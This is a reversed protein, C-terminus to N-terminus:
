HIKLYCIPNELFPSISFPLIQEGNVNVTENPLYSFHPCTIKPFNVIGGRVIMKVHYKQNKQKQMINQPHGYAIVGYDDVSKTFRDM